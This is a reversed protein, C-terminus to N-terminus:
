EEREKQKKEGSPTDIIAKWNASACEKCVQMLGYYKQTDHMKLDVAKKCDNCYYFSSMRKNGKHLSSHERVKEFDNFAHARDNCDFVYRLV